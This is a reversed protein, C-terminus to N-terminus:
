EVQRPTNRYDAHVYFAGAPKNVAVPMDGLYITEQNVSGSSSYEGILHGSDDYAFLTTTGGSTKATRQGNGNYQYSGSSLWPLNFTSLRGPADYSLSAAGLATLSGNADYSLNATARATVRNSTPDITFSTATGNVTQSLRNGNADYSYSIPGGSGTYSTLRNLNDYGFGQNGGLASLNSLTWGTIRSAADYSITEVPDQVIRGDLDYSRTAVEGNALTWSIPGSFPQYAIGSVLPKGGLTIATIRGNAWSYGVSAGSPLTANLLNGSPGDYSYTSSLTHGGTLSSKGLVHGYGDYSWTTTGSPDTMGTMHGIGKNGNAVSDYVYTVNKSADTSYSKGTLRGLLDYTYTTVVGTAKAETLVLGRPDYTYVTTGSDPSSRSIVEGFGDYVSTTVLGRPDTVTTVHDQADYGYAISYQLPGTQSVLRNLADFASSYQNKLPDTVGTQNDTRDYTYLTTQGAAGISTLLRNLEDFTATSSQVITGGNNLVKTATIGGMANRTYQIQAGTGDQITSLRRANDYQYTYSAGSPQNISTVDGAADYGISTVMQGSGPNMTVQTLRGRADYAMDTEVNNADLIKLPQGLGNVATVQTVQGLANTISALNGHADYGFTITDATGPLPGDISTLLGAANYGYAWVRTQGNTSYPVTQSTTDAEQRQTLRGTGDYTLNITLGPKVIQTPLPYNSLWSMSVTRALNTGSADTRSLPRDKSDKVWATTRGEADTRLNIHGNADYGLQTTSGACNASPQGQISTIRQLAGQAAALQYVTQKGAANTVTRTNGTLDYQVSTYDVGNAHQSSTARGNADFTWTAFRIGREDTIGTLATLTASNEYEYNLQTPILPPAAPYTVQSLVTTHSAVLTSTAPGPSATSQDIYQYQYVQGDPATVSTLLNYASYTFQIQRGLSDSVSTNNGNGDYALTQTYGGRYAISTLQFAANYLEVTGDEDIFQWGGSIQQLSWSVDTRPSVMNGSADIYAPQWSSGNPSFLAERGDGLVLRVYAGGSGYTAFSRDFNSRWGAGLRSIATWQSNYSRTFALPFSDRTTFDTVTEFKNGSIVDIPNGVLKDNKGCRQGGNDDPPPPACGGPAWIAPQMGSACSVFAGGGYTPYGPPTATFGCTVSEVRGNLDYNLKSGTFPWPNSSVVYLDYYSYKCATIPDGFTPATHGPKVQPVWDARVPASSFAAMFCVLAVALIAVPMKNRFASRRHLLVARVFQLAVRRASM